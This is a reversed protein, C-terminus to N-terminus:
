LIYRKNCVNKGGKTSVLFLKKIAKQLKIIGKIQRMLIKILWVRIPKYRKEFKTYWRGVRWIVFTKLILKQIYSLKSSGAILKFNAQIFPKYEFCRNPQPNYPKYCYRETGVVNSQYGAYDRILFIGNGDLILKTGLFCDFFDFGGMELYWLIDSRKHLGYYYATSPELINTCANKFVGYEPSLDPLEGELVKGTECFFTRAKCMVTSYNGFKSICKEIFYKDWENDDDAWMFFEGTAKELVFAYNLFATINKKQYYYKIRQDREMFERVVEETKKTPSCDNSVIIELNKYSQGTICELTTRLGEPRDYTVIGISVLPQEKDIGM